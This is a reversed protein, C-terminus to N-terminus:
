KRGTGSASTAIGRGRSRRPGSSSPQSSQRRPRTPRDSPRRHIPPLLSPRPRQSTRRGHGAAHPPRCPRTPPSAASALRRRGHYHTTTPTSPPTPRAASTDSESSHNQSWQTHRQPTNATPEALPSPLLHRRSLPRQSLQLRPTQPLSCIANQRLCPSLSLMVRVIVLVHGRARAARARCVKCSLQVLVLETWLGSNRGGYRREVAAGPAM